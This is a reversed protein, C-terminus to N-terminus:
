KRNDLANKIQAYTGTKSFTTKFTKPDSIEFHTQERGLEDVVRLARKIVEPSDKRIEVGAEEPGRAYARVGGDKLFKELGGKYDLKTMM